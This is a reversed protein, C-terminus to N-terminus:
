GAFWQFLKVAIWGIAVLWIFTAVGSVVIWARPLGRRSQRDAASESPFNDNSVVSGESANEREHLKHNNMAAPRTSNPCDVSSEWAQPCHQNETARDVFYDAFLYLRATTKAM